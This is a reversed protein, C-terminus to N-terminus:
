RTHIACSAFLSDFVDNLNVYTSGDDMGLVYRMVDAPGMPPATPVSPLAPLVPAGAVAGVGATASPATPVPSLFPAAPGSPTAPVQYAGEACSLRPECMTTVPRQVRAHLCVPQNTEFTPM